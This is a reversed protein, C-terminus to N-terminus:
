PGASADIQWETASVTQVAFGLPTAQVHVTYKGAALLSPAWKARISTASVIVASTAATVAGTIKNKAWAACAGGVLTTAGAGSGFAIPSVLLDIGDAVYTQQITM